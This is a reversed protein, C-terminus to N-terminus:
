MLLPLKQAARRLGRKLPTRRQAEHPVPTVPPSKSFPAPQYRAAIKVPTYSGPRDPGSPVNATPPIDAGRSWGVAGGKDSKWQQLM